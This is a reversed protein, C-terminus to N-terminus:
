SQLARENHKELSTVKESGLTTQLWRVLLKETIIDHPVVGSGELRLSGSTAISNGEKSSELTWHIHHIRGSEDIDKKWVKWVHEM